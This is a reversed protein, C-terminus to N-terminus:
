TRSTSGSWRFRARRGMSPVRSSPVVDGSGDAYLELSAFHGGTLLAALGHGMEHALTSLLFLPYGVIEGFPVVALLLTLVVSGLFVQRASFPQAM